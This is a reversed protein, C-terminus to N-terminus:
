LEESNRPTGKHEESNRLTEQLEKSTRLTGQFEEANRPTGPTRKLKESFIKPAKPSSHRSVQKEIGLCKKIEAAM